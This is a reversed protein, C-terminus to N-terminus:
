LSNKGHIMDCFYFCNVCKWTVLLGIHLWISLYNNNLTKYSFWDFYIIVILIIILNEEEGKFIFCKYSSVSKFVHKKLLTTLAVNWQLAAQKLEYLAKLLQVVLTQTKPDTLYWNMHSRASLPSILITWQGVFKILASNNVFNIPPALNWFWDLM